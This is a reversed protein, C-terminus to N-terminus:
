ALAPTGALELVLRLADAVTAHRVEHRGIDGYRMERHLLHLGDGAAIHVLGAPKEQSDSGPGAVGTVAVAWRDRTGRLAGDVMARAVQSSVAGHVVIMDAPVGLMDTKASYSYTVYGRDLVDSSGAIETLAAAILGGTCSKATILMVRRSRCAQLVRDALDLVADDLVVRPLARPAGDRM